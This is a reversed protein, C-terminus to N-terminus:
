VYVGLLLSTDQGRVEKDTMESMQPSPVSKGSNVTVVILHAALWQATRAKWAQESVAGM